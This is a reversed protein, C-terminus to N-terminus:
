NLAPAPVTFRATNDGRSFPGHDFRQGNISIEVAEANGLLVRFPASGSLNSVTGPKVLDFLLRRENADYVESWSQDAFTLTLQDLSSRQAPAADGADVPSASPTTPTNPVVTPVGQVPVEAPPLAEAPSQEPPTIPGAEQPPPAATTSPMVAEDSEPTLAEPQKAAPRDETVAPVSEEAAESSQQPESEAEGAEDPPEVQRQTLGSREAYNSFWYVGALGILLVAVTSWVGTRKSRKAPPPALSSQSTDDAGIATLYRAVLPEPDLGLFRAYSRLYGKVYTPEPLDQFRDTEMAEIYRVDLHLHKAVDDQGYNLAVRAKRLAEGLESTAQDQGNSEETPNDLAM